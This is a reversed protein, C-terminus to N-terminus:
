NLEKTILNFKLLQAKWAGGRATTWALADPLWLLQEFRPEEHRYEVLKGLGRRALSNQLIRKDAALHNVDLDFIIEYNNAVDLGEVLAEICMARSDTESIGKVVYNVCRLDLESYKQLIQRKRAPSESVFHVASQGKKRVSNVLPRFHAAKDKPLEVVCLIYNKAKSEDVLLLKM